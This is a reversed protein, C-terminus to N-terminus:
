FTVQRLYDQVEANWGLHDEIKSRLSSAAEPEGHPIFTRQPLKLFNGLWDLIEGYDAHASAHHLEEVQAKVPWMRGHIKIEGEGHVLLVGRTGVAQYGTFLITNRTDGIFYKLHHLVRGGTAM